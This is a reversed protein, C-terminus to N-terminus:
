FPRNCLRRSLMPGARRVARSGFAGPEIGALRVLRSLVRVKQTPVVFSPQISHRGEVITPGVLVSTLTKHDERTGGTILERIEALIEEIEGRPPMTDEIEIANQLGVRDCRLDTLKSTM